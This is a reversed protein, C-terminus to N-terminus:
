GPKPAAYLIHLLKETIVKSRVEASTLVSSYFLLVYIRDYYPDNNLRHFSILMPEPLFIEM